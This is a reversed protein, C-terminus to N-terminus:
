TTKNIWYCLSLIKWLRNWKCLRRTVFFVTICVTSLSLKAFIIILNRDIYWETSLLILDGLVVKIAYIWVFLLVTSMATLHLCVWIKIPFIYMHLTYIIFSKVHLYTVSSNDYWCHFNLFTCWVVHFDVFVCVSTFMVMCSKWCLSGVCCMISSSLLCITCYCLCIIHINFILDLPFVEIVTNENM